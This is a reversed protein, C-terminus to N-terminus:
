YRRGLTTAETEILRHRYERALRHARTELRFRVRECERIEFQLTQYDADDRLIECKRSKRKTETSEASAEATATEEIKGAEDKLAAIHQQLDFAALETAEIQAPMQEISATAQELLSSADTTITM